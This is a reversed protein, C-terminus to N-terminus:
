LLSYMLALLGKRSEVAAKHAGLVHDKWKGEWSHGEEMELKEEAQVIAQRVHRPGWWTGLNPVVILGFDCQYKTEDSLVSCDWVCDCMKPEKCADFGEALEPFSALVLFCLYKQFKM